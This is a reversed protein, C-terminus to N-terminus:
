VADVFPVVTEVAREVVSRVRMKLSENKCEVELTEFYVKAIMQDIKIQVGPAFRMISDCDVGDMDTDADALAKPPELPSVCNGFQADLFWLIRQLRQEPTVHAHPSTKKISSLDNHNHCHKSSDTRM